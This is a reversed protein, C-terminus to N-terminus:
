NAGVIARMWPLTWHGYGTRVRISGDTVELTVTGDKDTRLLRAGVTQLRKLASPHPHHYDNDEGVSILAYEPSLVELFAGSSSYRSGHHGVKLIEIDELVGAELLLQEVVEGADGTLLIEVEDQEVQLVPSTENVNEGLILPVDESPYLVEVGDFLWDEPPVLQGSRLTDNFADYVSSDYPVQSLVVHEVHYRELVPILGAIHDAHPHTAVVVDISRDWPPMVESLRTLVTGDVGGDVLMQRGDAWEVFVSDGQGVDFMTLTLDPLAQASAQMHRYGLVALAAAAVFVVVSVGLLIHPLKM